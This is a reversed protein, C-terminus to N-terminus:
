GCKFAIAAFTSYTTDTANGIFFRPLETAIPIHIHHITLTTPLTVGHEYLDRTLHTSCHIRRPRLGAGLLRSWAVRLLPATKTTREHARYAAKATAQASANPALLHNRAEHKGSCDGCVLPIHGRMFAETARVICKMM